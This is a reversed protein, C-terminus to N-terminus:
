VYLKLRMRCLQDVKADRVGGALTACTNDVFAVFFHLANELQPHYHGSHFFFYDRKVVGACYITDFGALAPHGGTSFGIHARINAGGTWVFDSNTIGHTAFLREDNPIVTGKQKELYRTANDGAVGSMTLAPAEDPHIRLAQKAREYEAWNM